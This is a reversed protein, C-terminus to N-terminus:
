IFISPLMSAIEMGLKAGQVLDDVQSAIGVKLFPVFAALPKKGVVFPLGIDLFHM